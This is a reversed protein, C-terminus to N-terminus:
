EFTALEREERHEESGSEHSLSAMEEGIREVIGTAEVTGSEGDVLRYKLSSSGANIVLVRTSPTQSM